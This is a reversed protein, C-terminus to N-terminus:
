NNKNNHWVWKVSNQTFKKEKAFIENKHNWSFLIAVDPINKRFYEISKIPIHMGPSFKGVKEETSDAIFDVIETSIKCYNLVTTSKASAAYGCIKKNQNKYFLIKKIFKNRLEECNNKFDICSKLSNMKLFIENNIMSNIKKSIPREKKRAIVYRMSGGHTIQPYADILDFDYKKFIEKVSLLSFIYVHADYIQDYSNKKFMSGLYPEEFIFVGKRSLVNDIGKILDNLDPIHCIVNAAFVVDTNKKFTNLNESNRENFFDSIMNLGKSKAIQSIKKSPEFGCHVINKERFNKLFTGDNAGIEIVKSSDKLYNKKIWDAFTKFHNIMYNSKSTYFPYNDNFIKKSSPHDNVQLLYYNESFGIELNYFFENKFQNKTLFANAMPMKGFSMFPNIKKGSFKCKM